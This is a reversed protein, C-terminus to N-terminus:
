VVFGGVLAVFVLGVLFDTPSRVRMMPRGLSRTPHAFARDSHNHLRVSARAGHGRAMAITARCVRPCAESQGGEYPANSDLVTIPQASSQPRTGAAARPAM